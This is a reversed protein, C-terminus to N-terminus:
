IDCLNYSFTIAARDLGWYTSIRTDKLAGNEVNYFRDYKANAMGAGIEFEIAWNKKIEIRYGYGIGGGLLPRDSDQYRYHSTRVNFWAVNLHLSFFSGKKNTKLWWRGEPLIALTKVSFKDSLKWPCYLVDLSVSWKEEIAYEIGLNPITILWPLINSRIRLESNSSGEPAVMRFDDFNEGKSEFTCFMLLLGTLLTIIGPKM